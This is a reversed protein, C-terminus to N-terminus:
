AVSEVVGESIFNRTEKRRATAEEQLAQEFVIRGTGPTVQGIKWLDANIVNISCIFGGLTPGDAILLSPTNGTINLGGRINYAHDVINSPHGGGVGGSERAFFWDPLEELRIASRNANLSVSFEHSFLYDMGRETAFDPSANMGVIARLRVPNEYVPVGAKRIRRRGKWGYESKGTKVVDNPKLCRGDYGGYNGFVCTSKSGLYPEVDIGGAVCLYSRFANQERDYNSFDLIDGRKVFITEWLPIPSGNLTPHMDAGTVAIIGDEAFECRFLGAAIEIAAEGLRNGLLLNGLQLALNDLAGSASMGQGNYGLRGPWDEVLAQLGGNIVKIM